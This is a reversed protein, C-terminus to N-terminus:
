RRIRAQRQRVAASTHTGRGTAVHAAMNAPQEDLRTVTVGEIAADHTTASDTAM